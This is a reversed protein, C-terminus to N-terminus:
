HRVKQHVNDLTYLDPDLAIAVLAKAVGSKHVALWDIRDHAYESPVFRWALSRRIQLLLKLAESGRNAHQNRLASAADKWERETSYVTLRDGLDIHLITTLLEAGISSM